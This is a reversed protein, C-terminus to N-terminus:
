RSARDGCRNADCAHPANRSLTTYGARLRYRSRRTRLARAVGCLRPASRYPHEIHRALLAATVLLAFIALMPRPDSRDEGMM